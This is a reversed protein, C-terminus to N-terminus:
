SLDIIEAISATSQDHLLKKREPCYKKSHGKTGCHFCRQKFTKKHLVLSGQNKEQDLPFALGPVVAKCFRAVTFSGEHITTTISGHLNKHQDDNCTSMKYKNWSQNDCDQRARRGSFHYLIEKGQELVYTGYEKHANIGRTIIDNLQKEGLLEELHSGLPLHRSLCHTRVYDSYSIHSRGYWFILPVLPYQLGKAIIPDGLDIHYRRRVKSTYNMTATSLFHICNAGVGLGREKHMAHVVDRLPATNIFFNDHQCIMVLPTTVIEKMAKDIAPASGYRTELEILEISGWAVVPVFPHHQNRIERRLSNLYLRYNEAKDKNCKGHKLNEITKNSKGNLVFDDGEEEKNTSSLEECGDALIVIRSELLGDAQAFSRFM